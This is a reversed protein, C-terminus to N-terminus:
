DEWVGTGGRLGGPQHDRPLRDVPRCDAGDHPLAHPPDAATWSLFPLRARHLHRGAAHGPPLRRLAFRTVFAAVPTHVHVIDYGGEAVIRRVEASTGLLNRPALPNRSWAVDYRNDFVDAIHPNGTAGNALADVRWGQARFHEAFPILFAELTIPVTTVFLASPSM